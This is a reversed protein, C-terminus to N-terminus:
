RGEQLRGMAPSACYTCSYPCGRSLMFSARGFESDVVKQYDFIDRDSFPLSDLDTIFPRTPNKVISSNDDKFDLSLLDPKFRTIKRILPGIKYSGQMCYLSTQHNHRKLMASLIGIGFHYSRSGFGMTNIDTYVFLIRM